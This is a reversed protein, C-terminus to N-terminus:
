STQPIGILERAGTIAAPTIKAGSLLRAVEHVREEADLRRLTTLTRGGKESKSVAFHTGALGAIQPLHTIAIVQHSGALKKLSRGVAHAIRGSVGVDIEDFVVVPLRDHKALIGKLALMIRSIEGGSAVRALPKMGEGPNLSILFEVTDFGRSELRVMENGRRGYWPDAVPHEVPGRELVGIRITFRANPIGVTALERVVETEVTTAAERRRVSLEEALRVCTTRVEGIEKELRLRAKGLNESCSLEGALKERLALVQEISGGYKKKLLSLRGLRERVYELRAPSFETGAYERMSRATEAVVARASEIETAFEGFRPDLDALSRLREHVVSLLDHVSHDAGYLTEAIGSTSAVLTEINGLIKEEGLLAVDEGVVPMVAEIEGLQHRYLDQRTGLEHDRDLIGQFEDTLQRLRERASRYDSLLDKLRAFSDLVEIHTSPRLLSQHEHQGHFDVLLDGAAKLVGLPVPTDNIFCRGQGKAPIERRLILPDSRDLGHEELLKEIEENGSTEFWAEVVAKRAGSRVAEGSAREGLVLAFADVIISKGAGTEGTLVLFGGSLDVSLEEILAYNKITLSSLM